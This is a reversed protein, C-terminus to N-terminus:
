MEIDYMWKWLFFGIWCFFVTFAIIWASVKAIHTPYILYATGVLGVIIAAALLDFRDLSPLDVMM